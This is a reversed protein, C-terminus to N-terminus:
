PAHARDFRRPPPDGHEEVRLLAHVEPIEHPPDRSLMRDVEVPNADPFEHMAVAVAARVLSDTEEL